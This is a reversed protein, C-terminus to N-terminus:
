RMNMLSAGRELAEERSAFGKLLHETRLAKLLRGVEPGASLACREMLEDGSPILAEETRLRAALRRFRDRFLARRRRPVRVRRLAGFLAFLSEWFLEGRALLLGAMEARSLNGAPAARSCVLEASGACVEKPWRWGELIGRVSSAGAYDPFALKRRFSALLATRRPLTEKRDDLYKLSRLFLALGGRGGGFLPRVIHLTRSAALGRLFLRPDGELGLRVERGIREPACRAFSPAAARVGSYADGAVSFGPLTAAFRPLRLARLPDEGLRDAVSGNFRLLRLAIDKRSRSSGLLEGTSRLALANVTFDRRALDAELSGGCFSTIECRGEGCPVLFVPKGRPGVTKGDPFLAALASFSAETAIDIDEPARGLLLDRVAGGVLASEFGARELLILVEVGQVPMINM